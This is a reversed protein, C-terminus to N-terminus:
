LFALGKEKKVFSRCNLGFCVLYGLIWTDMYGDLDDLDDLDHLEAEDFNSLQCFKQLAVRLNPNGGTALDSSM